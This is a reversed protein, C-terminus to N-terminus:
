RERARRARLPTGEATALAVPGAKPAPKPTKPMRDRAFQSGQVIELVMEGLLMAPLLMWSWQAGEGGGFKGNRSRKQVSVGGRMRHRSSNLTEQKCWLSTRIYGWTIRPSLNVSSLVKVGGAV